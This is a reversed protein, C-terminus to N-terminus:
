RRRARIAADERGAILRIARDAGQGGESAGARQAAHYYQLAGAYDGSQEACLGLNFTLSPNNPLEGNLAAWGTCAGREDRKTLKVLDKFRKSQDKSMGKDSERVRISYTSITPAIDARVSYGLSRVAGAIVEEVPGPASQGECWSNDQTFPKTTSYVIRGDRNRVLRLDAKVNITRRRCRLEVYEERVCKKQDASDKEVCRKEKRKFPQEDVGTTIGGSLSGEANSRGTRGGMLDFHTGSLGQEIARELAAGDQGDIRDISISRLLSAERNPAAFEGTIELVEANAIGAALAAIAIAGLIHKRM